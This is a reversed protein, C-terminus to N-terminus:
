NPPLNPLSELTPRTTSRINEVMLLNVWHVLHNNAGEHACYKGEYEDGQGCFSTPEQEGEGPRAALRDTPEGIGSNADFRLGGLNKALALQELPDHRSDCM